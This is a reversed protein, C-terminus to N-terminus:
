AHSRTHHAAGDTALLQFPAVQVGILGDTPWCYHRYAQTYAAANAVRNRTRDLLDTVDLGSAAAVALIDV